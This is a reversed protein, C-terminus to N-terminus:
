GVEMPSLTNKWRNDLQILTPLDPQPRYEQTFYDLYHTLMRPFFALPQFRIVAKENVIFSSTERSRNPLRLDIDFLEPRYLRPYAKRLYDIGVIKGYISEAIYSKFGMSSVESIFRIVPNGSKDFEAAIGDPVSINKLSDSGICYHIRRSGPYFRQMLALCNDGSLIVLNPNEQKLVATGIEECIIGAMRPVLNEVGEEYESHHLSPCKGTEIVKRALFYQHKSRGSSEYWEFIERGQCNPPILNEDEVDRRMESMMLRQLTSEISEVM